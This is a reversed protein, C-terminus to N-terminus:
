AAHPVPLRVDISADVVGLGSTTLTVPCGTSRVLGLIAGNGSLISARLRDVGHTRAWGIAVALLARGVGHHQWADAVAIAMEVQGSGVPELCLHGIIRRATRDVAEAVLGERHEHDPGCFFRSTSDAIGHSAHHFRAALSDPSLQAYFRALEDRDDPTIARIRYDPSPIAHGNMARLM